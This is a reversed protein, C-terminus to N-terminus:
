SKPLTHYRIADFFASPQIFGFYPTIKVDLPINLSPDDIEITGDTAFYLPKGNGHTVCAVSHGTRYARFFGLDTSYVPIYPSDESFKLDHLHTANMATARMGAVRDAILRYPDAVSHFSDDLFDKMKEIQMLSARLRSVPNEADAVSEGREEESFSALFLWLDESPSNEPLIETTPGRTHALRVDAIAKDMADRTVAGVAVLAFSVQTRCLEIYSLPDMGQLCLRNLVTALEPHGSVLEIVREQDRTM